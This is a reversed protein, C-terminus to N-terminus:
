DYDENLSRLFARLADLDDNRLAIGTLQVDGNRVSGLRALDSMTRYHQIVVELSDMQGTHFYPASQGLDRLGATKFLAIAHELDADVPPNSAGLVTILNAQPGPLADNAFVNWLGLDTLTSNMADPVAAYPGLGNPRNTTPPLYADPNMTRETLTPVFLLEFTGQGHIDDYEAQATGVNHFSHDTFKPPAHCAICNGIGGDALEQASAPLGQPETLFIKLGELQRPGFQFSQAHLEFAGDLETVWEPNALQDVLGLLRRAYEQDSEGPEPRTPLANKVLFADYPSGAFDGLEDQHFLLQEVYVTVLRAIADVIEQDTATQVDIRLNEPLRLGKPISPSTGLLLTPYPVRGFDAAIPDHGDDNRVVNAIHAIALAHESALWGYNRGTLTDRVLDELTAFEADFHFFSPGSRSIASNVLPPSNRLAVTHGDSRMPIPSRRAFDTYTRVGAGPTDLHEDVLHCARCNMSLGAFPGPFTELTGVTEDLTPDGGTGNAFFFQAFRTELFLREGM